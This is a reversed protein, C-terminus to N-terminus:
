DTCSLEWCGRGFINGPHMMIWSLILKRVESNQMKCKKKKTKKLGLM